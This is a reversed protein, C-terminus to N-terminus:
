ASGKLSIVVSKSAPTRSKRAYQGLPVLANAEPFYTAACGRPIDYAIVEFGDARREEGHFHSFLDVQEGVRLGRSAIDEPHLLIVRRKNSIGRYRDNLDYVTTNYQDHSRITMMILQDEDLAISEIPSVMFNARGTSTKFDRERAGNPLLFGTPVKRIRRNFNEFGPIVAAIADRIPDYPGDFLNWDVPSTEADFTAQAIGLVIRPESLLAESAPPLHGRSARVVSMSDEVTVFQPRGAQMDRETRGLCPLILATGGTRLHSRNLKTSIQVTLACREMARATRETDPAAMVFNGGMAVFVRAKGEEMAEIAAITDFGHERPPEFGFHASLRDLFAETPKEWIGMTRDGQVNSHGRVPCAGSGPRGMFGRMLLFNVVQQINAVGHKHQTLGMAWCAILSNAEIAVQAAAEIEARELGTEEVITAWSTAELDARHAEFGSTQNAIFDHDLVEGPREEEAALMCKMLGKLLAIDSGTRLQLYHDALDTPRRYLEKPHQFAVLGPEKLPNIAVITAGRRKAAQLASLMRPHNTGPNQGFIFLADTTEVDELSVTGKGVGLSENMGTGSSEHCMNSCDPLNNTGLQRALLQYLFAAENSTRGSTYFIAQDPHDLARLADGILSFAEDWAIPEYHDAGERRVMPHTIRGQKNLWHDSKERLDSVSHTEFFAPDVKFRTAEDAVAKAGNECFEFTSRDDPDPWACGPCDFGETQNLSALARTGRILGPQELVHRTTSILADLGGAAKKYDTLDDSTTPAPLNKSTADDSM